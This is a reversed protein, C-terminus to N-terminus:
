FEYSNRGKMKEKLLKYYMRSVYVQKHTNHFEVISSSTINRNISYVYNVNLISSKSIRMFNSPLMDELEYLKYKTQFADNDTHATVLNGDTEFFLIKNIDLFYEINDKYFILENNKNNLTEKILKQIHEINKDIKKCRIIIEEDESDDIEIKIKM